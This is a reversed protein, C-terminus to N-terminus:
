VVIGVVFCRCNPGGHCDKNPCEPLDDIDESQVGDWDKCPKCTNLDLIASYEYLEADSNRLEDDRGSQIGLNATNRALQEFTKKSEDKLRSELEEASFIGLSYLWVVVNIARNTIDAIVKAIVASALLAIDFDREKIEFNGNSKQANLEEIVQARGTKVAADLLRELRKRDSRRVELSLKDIGEVGLAEAQESAQLILRKRIDLILKATKQSHKKLDEVKGKLNISKELENPERSLELGNWEYSKSKKKVAKGDDAPPDGETLQKPDKYAAIQDRVIEGRFRDGDDIPPRGTEERYENLTIGGMTFDKRTRDHIKDLDEQLFAAQSIDWSVRIDGRKIADIDEFEPLVFWTLWKRFPKLEPSIKNAWFDRLAEKASARQNVWRLGVYAGVLIPPVGFVSCIRSEQRSSISESDLENLKSGLAQFDANQDLVSIGGQNTGGRGYRKRWKEQLREKETESVTRNLVKLIGAPLGGGEFMADIYTTLGIDSNISGLAVSVPALGGYQNLLDPRRRILMDEPKIRVIQGNQKTYEYYLVKSRDHDSRPTVRGPNLIAFEVPLDAASREMAIYTIGTTQESQVIKRRFDEGVDVANPKSFLATLPHGVVEEYESNKTRKEVIPEADNMVDAIKNICAFVLEHQRYATQPSSTSIRVDTRRLFNFFYRDWLSGDPTAELFSKQNTPVLAQKIQQWIAM